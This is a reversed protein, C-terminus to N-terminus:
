AGQHVNPLSGGCYLMHDKLWQVEMKVGGSLSPQTVCLENM